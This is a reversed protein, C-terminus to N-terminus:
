KTNHTKQRPYTQHGGHRRSKHGDMLGQMGPFNWQDCQGGSHDKQAPREIGNTASHIAATRTTDMLGALRALLLGMDHQKDGSDKKNEVHAHKREKVKIGITGRLVDLM